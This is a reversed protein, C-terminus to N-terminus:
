KEADPDWCATLLGVYDQAKMNEIKQSLSCYSFFTVQVILSGLVLNSPITPRLGTIIAEELQSDTEYTQRYEDFPHQLVLIEWLM